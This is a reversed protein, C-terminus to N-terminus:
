EGWEWWGQDDGNDCVSMTSVLALLARLWRLIAVVSRRRVAGVPIGLVACRGTTAWKRLWTGM